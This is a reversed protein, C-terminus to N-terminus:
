KEVCKFNSAETIDGKGQYIVRQPWPCVPRTWLVKGEEDSKTTLLTEPAEDQEVWKELATLPDFGNQNIGPGDAIGCHDMGPIMFLRLFNQTDNRNGIRKEVSRYYNVSVLPPVIADAWGHWMLLKGGNQRFAKLDPNGADYVSAMYELRKPDKDFDFDTLEYTEGPDNQFGMYRLYELGVQSILDDTIDPSEGTLWLSWYPESGFPVGPYLRKGDSNKPGQYFAKVADVQEITLCNTQNDEDDCILGSPDFACTEPNSVLGDELGDLQDCAEYVAEGVLDAIDKTVINKGDSRSNTQGIWAAFISLPSVDIDGAGNIIGDFDDPYRVAEMVAQRGGTSCGSFYSWQPPDNYYKEIISKTVRATEHVARYGWDVEALRNNYAWRGDFITEGWHGGDTTSVAYNRRLGHNIANIFNPNESKLKGCYGGCGAMYFKGNWNDTPLRIEFNVAPRVYGLVRCYEPLEESAPVVTASLLNTDEIYLDALQQCNQAFLQTGSVVLFIVVLLYRKM